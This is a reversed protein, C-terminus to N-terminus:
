GAVSRYTGFSWTHGEPDKASYERSGYETDRIDILIAAGAAKARACHTDPDAVYAYVTQSAAPLDLPSVWGYQPNPGGFMVVGDGFSMEVHVLRGDAGRHAALTRFAFASELWAVAAEPDRYTLAPYFTPANSM